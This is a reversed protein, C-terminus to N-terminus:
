NVTVKFTIITSANPVLDNLNFGTEPNLNEKAEGDITVSNEVFTTGAPIPDSFVLNTNTISGSNEITITYIIEDGTKVVSTNATKLLVIDNNVVKLNLENSVLEYSNGELDFNIKSVSKFEDINPYEDILVDYTLVMESGMAGITVPLTFGITPDLDPYEQSGVKLSKKVFTVGSPLTDTIILDEINQNMNNTITLDIKITEKPLVWNKPAGRIIIIDSDVNNAIHVNSQNSVVVEETGETIKSQLLAKNSVAM